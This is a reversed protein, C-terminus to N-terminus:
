EVYLALCKLCLISSFRMITILCWRGDLRYEFFKTITWHVISSCYTFM